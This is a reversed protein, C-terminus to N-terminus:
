CRVSILRPIISWVEEPLTDTPLCFSCSLIVSKGCGSEGVICLTKGRQVDFTVGNVAHVTRRGVKFDTKLDKVQLIYDRESM